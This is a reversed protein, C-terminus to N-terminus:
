EILPSKATEASARVAILTVVLAASVYLSVPLTSRYSRYL